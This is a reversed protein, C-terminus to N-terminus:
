GVRKKMSKPYHWGPNREKYKKVDAAIALAIAFSDIDHGFAREFEGDPNVLYYVGEDANVKEPAPEKATKAFDTVSKKIKDFDGGHVITLRSATNPKDHDDAVQQLKKRGEESEKLAKDEVIWVPKNMQMNSQRDQETVIEQLKALGQMAHDSVSQGFMLISFSGKLDDRTFKEGKQTEMQFDCISVPAMGAAKKAEKAEERTEQGDSSSGPVSVPGGKQSAYATFLLGLGAGILGYRAYPGMMGQEHLKPAAGAASASNDAQSAFMRIPSGAQKGQHEIARSNIPEFTSCKSARHLLGREVLCRMQKMAM